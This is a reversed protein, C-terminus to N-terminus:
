RAECCFMKRHNFFNYVKKQEWGFKERLINKKHDM